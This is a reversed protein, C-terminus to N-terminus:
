KGSSKEAAKGESGLFYTMKEMVTKEVAERGVRLMSPPLACCEKNTMSEERGIAALFAIELDTAINVKSIGGGPSQIAQRIMESPVGSGGHLVLHVNTLERIKRVRELDIRPQRIMYVGHATGVSVALADVKTQEVFERAEEPVTFLEEDTDTEIFDTTGIRGLEAEVSVGRPHAYEVIEKTLAANQDFEEHSADIMVSTFGVAIAEEILAKDRTHDLHLVVPVSTKEERLVRYFEEAFEDVTIGYKKLERSSIQVIVPSKCKEAAGMVAGILPTYRPSFSGVAYGGQEARGLVETLTVLNPYKGLGIM